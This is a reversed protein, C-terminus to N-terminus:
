NAETKRSLIEIDEVFGPFMTVTPKKTADKWLAGFSGNNITAVIFRDPKSTVMFYVTPYVKPVTPEKQGDFVSLSVNKSFGEVSVFDAKFEDSLTSARLTKNRPWFKIRFLKNDWFSLAVKEWGDIKEYVITQVEANGEAKKSISSLSSLNEAKKKKPKGITSVAKEPTTEHFVLGDWVSKRQGSVPFYLLFALIVFLVSKCM